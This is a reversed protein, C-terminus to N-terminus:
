SRGYIVSLVVQSRAFLELALVRLELGTVIHNSEHWFTCQPSSVAVKYNLCEILTELKKKEFTVKKAAGVIKEKM